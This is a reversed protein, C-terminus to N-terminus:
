SRGFLGLACLCQACGGAGHVCVRAAALLSLSVCAELHSTVGDTRLQVITLPPFTRATEGTCRAVDATGFVRSGQLM